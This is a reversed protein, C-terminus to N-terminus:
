AKRTKPFEGRFHENRFADEPYPYPVHGHLYCSMWSQRCFEAAIVSFFRRLYPMVLLM